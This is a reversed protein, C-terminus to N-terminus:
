HNTVYQSCEGTSLDLRCAKNEQMAQSLADSNTIQANTDAHYFKFKSQSKKAETNGCSALSLLTLSVTIITKM